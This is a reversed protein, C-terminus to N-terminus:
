DLLRACNARGGGVCRATIRNTSLPVQTNEWRISKRGLCANSGQTARILAIVPNAVQRTEIM